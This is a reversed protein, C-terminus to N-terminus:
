KEGELKRKLEELRFPLRIYDDYDYTDFGCRLIVKGTSMNKIIEFTKKGVSEGKWYDCVIVADPKEASFVMLAELHNATVIQFGFHKIALELSLSLSDNEAVILVRVIDKRENKNEGVQEFGSEFNEKM